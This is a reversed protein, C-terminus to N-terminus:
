ITNPRWDTNNKIMANLTVIFKRMAAVIALKFPKGRNRLRLFFDRIPSAKSTTRAAAVTAMYLVRRVRARGAQCRGPRTSNGSQHPHPAVGVLSAAQRSSLTGLEGMYAILTAALIPGAGPASQIRTARADLEPQAAITQAITHEIRKIDDQAQKIRQAVLQKMAPLSLRKIQGRLVTLHESIQHRLAVMEKLEDALTDVRYPKRTPAGAQAARAILAADLADTKARKGNLRAFARVDAPHLCFVTLGAAALTQACTREYGGSAELAFATAETPGVRKILRRVAQATNVVSFVIADPHVHVDLRDKAVDIGVFRSFEPMSREGQSTMRPRTLAGLLQEPRPFASLAKSGCSRWRDLPLVAEQRSLPSTAVEGSLQVM